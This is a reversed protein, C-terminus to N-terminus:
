GESEGEPTHRRLIDEVTELFARAVRICSGCSTFGWCGHSGKTVARLRALASPENLTALMAELAGMPAAVPTAPPEAGWASMGKTRREFEKAAEKGERMLADLDLGGVPSAASEAKAAPAAGGERGDAAPTTTSVTTSAETAAHALPSMTESNIAGPAHCGCSCFPSAGPCIRCKGQSCAAGREGTPATSPTSPLSRIGAAVHIAGMARDFETDSEATSWGGEEDRLRKGEANADKAYQDAVLAAEELGRRRGAEYSADCACLECPIAQEHPVCRSERPEGGPASVPTEAGECRERWVSILRQAEPCATHGPSGCLTCTSATAEPTPAAQNCACMRCPPQKGTLGHCACSCAFRM